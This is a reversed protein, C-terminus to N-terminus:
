VGVISAQPKIKKVGLHFYCDKGHHHLTWPSHFMICKKKKFVSFYWKLASTMCLAKTCKTHNWATLKCASVVDLTSGCFPKEQAKTLNFYSEQLPCPSEVLRQALKLSLLLSFRSEGRIKNFMVLWASNIVNINEWASEQISSKLPLLQLLEVGWYSGVRIDGTTSLKTIIFISHTTKPCISELSLPQHLTLHSCISGKWRLSLIPRTKAQSPLCVTIIKM